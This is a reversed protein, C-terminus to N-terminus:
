KLKGETVGEDITVTLLERLDKLYSAYHVNNIAEILGNIKDKAWPNDEPTIVTSCNTAYSNIIYVSNTLYETLSTMPFSKNKLTYSFKNTGPIIVVDMIHEAPTNKYVRIEVKLSSSYLLESYLFSLDVLVKYEM